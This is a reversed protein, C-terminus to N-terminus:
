DEIDHPPYVIRDRPGGRVGVAAVPPEVLADLMSPIWTGAEDGGPRSTAKEQLEQARALRLRYTTLQPGRTRPFTLYGLGGKPGVPPRCGGMQDRRALEAALARRPDGRQKYSQRIDYGDNM